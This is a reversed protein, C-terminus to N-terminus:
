INYNIKFFEVLNVLATADAVAGVANNRNFIIVFGCINLISDIANKTAGVFSIRSKFSYDKYSVINYQKVFSLVFATILSACILASYIQFGVLPNGIYNAGVAFVCFSFSNNIMSVSICDVANQEFGSQKLKSILTAGVAFGGFISVTLFGPYRNDEIKMLRAYWRWPFSFFRIFCDSSFYNSFVMIPYLSPIISEYCVFLAGKVANIVAFPNVFILAALSLMLINGTKEKTIM